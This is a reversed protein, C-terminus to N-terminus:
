DKMQQIAIASGPDLSFARQFEVLAQELQGNNKLRMGSEVHAQGALFRLRRAGLQYGADQPDLSLAQQYLDLAKDYDKEAEADRAQQVIKDAKRTRASLTDAPLVLLIAAFMALGRLRNCAIM